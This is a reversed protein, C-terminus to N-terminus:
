GVKQADRYFPGSSVKVPQLSSIIDTYIILGNDSVSRYWYIDPHFSHFSETMIFWFLNPM